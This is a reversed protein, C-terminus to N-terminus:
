FYKTYMDGSSKKRKKKTPTSPNLFADMDFGGGTDAFGGGISEMKEGLAKLKEARAKKKEASTLGYKRKAHAEARAKRQASERKRTAKATERKANQFYKNYEKKALKNKARISKIKGLKRPM